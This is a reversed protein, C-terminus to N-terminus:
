SRAPVRTKMAFFQEVIAKLGTMFNETSFQRGQDALHERLDTQLSPKELITIIKDVADDVDAYMLLPHNVIEAQGGEKPVFPICGAKIMEAIAIGFAEGNCGHIGFRHSALLMLKADGCQPGEPIVWEANAKALETVRRGYADQGVNGIIHLHVDHRRQRVRALIDIVREIRKVPDIRGLCVFGNERQAWPVSPFEGPVPPYLVKANAGHKARLLDATWRSNAVICDQGSFVNHGSSKNLFRALRLYTRRIANDGYIFKAIGPPAPHLSRRIADDWSFDAIFHIAPVGFDCFSYASILVDFDPAVTRCLRAYAVSDLADGIDMRRLLTLWLPAPAKLVNFDRAQLSTGYFANLGDLDVEGGTVLTVDHDDKLAQITWMARTESGGRGLRPHTVGIKLARESMYWRRGKPGRSM